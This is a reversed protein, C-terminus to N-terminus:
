ELRTGWPTQGGEQTSRNTNAQPTAANTRPLPHQSSPKDRAAHHCASTARMSRVVYMSESPFPTASGNPPRRRRVIHLTTPLVMCRM